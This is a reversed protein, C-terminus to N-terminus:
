AMRLAMATISVQDYDVEASVTDEHVERAASHFNMWFTDEDPSSEFEVTQTRKFQGDVFVNFVGEVTGTRRLVDRPDVEFGRDVVDRLNWALEERTV